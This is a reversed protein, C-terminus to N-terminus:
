GGIAIVVPLPPLGFSYGQTTIQVSGSGTFADDIDSQAVSPAVAFDGCDETLISRAGWVDSTGVIRCDRHVVVVVQAAVVVVAAVLALGVLLAVRWRRLAVRQAATRSDRLLALRTARWDSSERDTLAAQVCAGISAAAVALGFAAEVWTTEIMVSVTIAWATGLVIVVAQWLPFGTLRYSRPADRFRVTVVVANIIVSLAFVVAFTSAALGHVWAGTFQWAETTRDDSSQAALWGAVPIALAGYAIGLLLRPPLQRAVASDSRSVRSM